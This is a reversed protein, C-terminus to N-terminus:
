RQCYNQIVLNLYQFRNDLICVSTTSEHVESGVSSLSVLFIACIETESLKPYTAREPM